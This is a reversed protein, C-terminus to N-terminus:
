KGTKLWYSIGVNWYFVSELNEKFVGEETTISAPTQPFAIVPTFSFIFSGIYYQFPFRAEITLVNFESAESITVNTMEAQMIGSGGSGSGSGPEQQGDGKRNGLRSTNYYEEYFNQTGAGVMVAPIVLLKRDLAYFTRNLMLSTFLDPSSGESFYSAAILTLEAVKFDYGLTATIDAEIGSQVNYSEDDFFYKTGSLGASLDEGTFLYGASILCLDIRNEDSAVLYSASTSAFFGSKNFYELSPYIYPAKTGAGWLSRM